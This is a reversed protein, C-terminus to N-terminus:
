GESGDEEGSSSTCDAGTITYDATRTGGSEVTVQEPEVTAEFTLTETAGDVEFEKEGVFTMDWDGPPVFDMGYSGETGAENTATVEATRSVEGDAALVARPTFDEVSRASGGCDPLSVGEEVVVSGEIGGSTRVVSSTITPRLVFKGSRGATHGFSESVNFDLMLIVTEEELELGGGPLNVKVGTETCSPCELAGDPDNGGPHEAGGFTWVRGDTSEAVGGDIVLRLQGYVGPEIPEDQVLDTVAEPTLPILQDPNEVELTTGGPDDADTEGALRIETVRIWAAELDGPADTMRVTLTPHSDPGSLESSATGGCALTSLGAALALAVSAASRCATAPITEERDCM